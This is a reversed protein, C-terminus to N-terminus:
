GETFDGPEIWHERRIMRGTKEDLRWGLVLITRFPGEIWRAACERINPDWAPKGNKLPPRQTIKKLRAAFNGGKASTVQVLCTRTDDFALFDAFGMLDKARMSHRMLTEVKQVM